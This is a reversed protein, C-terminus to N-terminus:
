TITVLPQFQRWVIHLLLNVLQRLFAQCWRLNTLLKSWMGPCSQQWTICCSGNIVYYCFLHSHSSCVFMLDTLYVYTQNTSLPWSKTGTPPSHEMVFCFCFYCETPHWSSRGCCQTIEVPSCWPVAASCTPRCCWCAAAPPAFNTPWSLKDLGETLWHWWTADDAESAALEVASKRCPQQWWRCSVNWWYVPKSRQGGALSGVLGFMVIILCVTVTQVASPTLTRLSIRWRWCESDYWHRDASSNLEHLCIKFVSSNSM